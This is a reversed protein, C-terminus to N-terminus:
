KEKKQNNKYQTELKEQLTMEGGLEKRKQYTEETQSEEAGKMRDVLKRRIYEDILQDQTMGDLTGSKMKRKIVAKDRRTLEKKADVKEVKKEPEAPPEPTVPEVVIRRNTPQEKPQEVPKEVPQEVVKEMTKKKKVRGKKTHVPM